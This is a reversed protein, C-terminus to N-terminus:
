ETAPLDRRTSWDPVGYWHQHAEDFELVADVELEEDYLTVVLGQILQDISYEASPILTNISVREREDAMITNYDVYIRLNM